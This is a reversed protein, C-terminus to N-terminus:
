VACIRKSGDHMDQWLRLGRKWWTYEFLWGIEGDLIEERFWVDSANLSRVVADRDVPPARGAKALRLNLQSLSVWVHEPEQESPLLRVLPVRGRWAGHQEDHALRHLIEVAWEYAPMDDSEMADKEAAEIAAPDGGVSSFWEMMDKLIDKVRTGEVRPLPVQRALVDRLYWIIIKEGTDDYVSPPTGTGSVPYMVRGPQTMVSRVQLWSGAFDCGKETANLEDRRKKPLHLLSGLWKDVKKAGKGDLVLHADPWCQYPVLLQHVAFAAGCWLLRIAEQDTGLATLEMPFFPGPLAVDQWKNRPGPILNHQKEAEGDSHVVFEPFM